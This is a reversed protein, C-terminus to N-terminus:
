LVGIREGSLASLSLLLAASWPERRLYSALARGNGTVIITWIDQSREIEAYQTHTGVDVLRGVVVRHVAYRGGLVLRVNSGFGGRSM